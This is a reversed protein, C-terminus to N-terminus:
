AQAARKSWYGLFWCVSPRALLGADARVCCEVLRCPIIQSQCHSIVGPDILSVDDLVELGAFGDEDAGLIMEDGVDVARWGQSSSWPNSGKKSKPKQRPVDQVAEDAADMLEAAEVAAASPPPAGGSKRRCRTSLLPDATPSRALADTVFIKM